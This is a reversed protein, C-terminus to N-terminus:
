KLKLLFLKKSNISSISDILEYKGEYFGSTEYFWNFYSLSNGRIIFDPPNQNLEKWIISRNKIGIKNEAFHVPLPVPLFTPSNLGTKAYYSAGEAIDVFLSKGNHHRIIQTFKDDNYAEFKTNWKINDNKNLSYLQYFVLFCFIYSLKKDTEFKMKLLFLVVIFFLTFFPFYYHQFNYPTLFVFSLSSILVLILFMLQTRNKSFFLQFFPVLFLLFLPFYHAIFPKLIYDLKNVPPLIVDSKAYLFNYKVIDIFPWFSGYFLLVVIFILSPLSVFLLGKWAVKKNDLSVLYYLCLAVAVIFFPEKFWFSFGLFFLSLHFFVVKKKDIYILWFMISLLVMLVGYFETYLFDHHMSKDFVIPLICIVFAISFIISKTCKLAIFYFVGASVLITFLALFFLAYVTNPALKIFIVILYFLGPPKNEWADKYLVSGDIVKQAIASFIGGDIDIFGPQVCFLFYQFTFFLIVVLGFITNFNKNSTINKLSFIQWNM